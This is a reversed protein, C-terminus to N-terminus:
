YYKIELDVTNDVVIYCTEECVDEIIRTRPITAGVAIYEKGNKEVSSMVTYESNISVTYTFSTYSSANYIVIGDEITGRYITVEYPTGSFITEGLEIRLLCNTPETFTCESCDVM